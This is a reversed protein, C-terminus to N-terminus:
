FLWLGPNATLLKGLANEADMNEIRNAQFVIFTM